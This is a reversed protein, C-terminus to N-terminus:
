EADRCFLRTVANRLRTLLTGEGVVTEAHLRNWERLEAVPWPGGAKWSAIGEAVGRSVDSSDWPPAIQQLVDPDKVPEAKWSELDRAAVIASVLKGTRRNTGVVKVSEYAGGRVPPFCYVKTAPEFTRAGGTAGDGAPEPRVAAVICWVSREKEEEELELEMGQAFNRISTVVAM